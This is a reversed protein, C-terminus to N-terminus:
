LCPGHSESVSEFYLTKATEITLCLSNKLVYFGQLNILDVYM